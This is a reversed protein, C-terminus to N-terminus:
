SLDTKLWKEESIFTKLGGTHRNLRTISTRSYSSSLSDEWKASCWWLSAKKDGILVNTHFLTHQSIALDHARVLGSLTRKSDQLNILQSSRYNSMCIYMCVCVCVCLCMCTRERVLQSLLRWSLLCRSDVFAADGWWSFVARSIELPTQKIWNVVRHFM